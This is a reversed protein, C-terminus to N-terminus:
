DELAIHKVLYEYYPSYGAEAAKDITTFYDEVQGLKEHPIQGEYCYYKLGDERFGVVAKRRESRVGGVGVYDLKHSTVIDAGQVLVILSPRIVPNVGGSTTMSPLYFKYDWGPIFKNRYGIEYQMAETIQNNAADRVINFYEQKTTAGFLLPSASTSNRITIGNAGGPTVSTWKTNYINVAYLTNNEQIVYPNKMSWKLRYEGNVTGDNDDTDVNSLQTIYYGDSCAFVAAPIFGEILAMNEASTDMGYNLCMMSEFIELTDGPSIAVSGLDAYELDLDDINLAAQFAAKTSNDVAVALRREAMEAEFTRLETHTVQLWMLLMLVCFFNIIPAWTRM